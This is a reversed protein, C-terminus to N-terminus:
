KAGDARNKQELTKQELTKQERCRSPRAGGALPFVDGAAITELSGDALRLLLRGDPDLGECRGCLERGPLRARMQGGIGCARALWASRIAAFGEGRRWQALRRMMSLSLASFVDEVSVNVGAALLDTAPYATELPHHACNIGIGVAVALKENMVLREGLSHGELLIGALKGGACLVDNPWKLQLKERLGPARDLIADCVALAALFSLGPVLRPPAPDHLLLTAYLNGPPSQWANGRRGRGATQTRATIWLPRTDDPREGARRLAEANTSPLIEYAAVRFGASQAAPDLRM